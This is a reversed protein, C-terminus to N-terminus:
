GREDEAIRLRAVTAKCSACEVTLVGTAKNYVAWTPLDPHCRSHLYLEVCPEDGAHHRHQCGMRDLTARTLGEPM